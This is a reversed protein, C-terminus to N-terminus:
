LIDKESVEPSLLVCTESGKSALDAWVWAGSGGDKTHEAVSSLTTTGEVFNVKKKVTEGNQFGKFTM